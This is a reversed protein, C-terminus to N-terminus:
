AVFLFQIKETDIHGIAPHVDLSDELVGETIGDFLCRHVMDFYLVSSFFDFLLLFRGDKALLNSHVTCPRGALRWRYPVSSSM